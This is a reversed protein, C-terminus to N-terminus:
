DMMFMWIVPRYIKSVWKRHSCKIAIKISSAFRCFIARHFRRQICLELYYLPSATELREESFMIQLNRGTLLPRLWWPLGGVNAFNKLSQTPASSRIGGRRQLFKKIQASQRGSGAWGFDSRKTTFNMNYSELGMPGPITCQIIGAM